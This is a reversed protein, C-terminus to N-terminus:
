PALLSQPFPVCRLTRVRLDVSLIQGGAVTVRATLINLKLLFLLRETSCGIASTLYIWVWTSM